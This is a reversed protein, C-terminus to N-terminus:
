ILDTIPRSQNKSFICALTIKKTYSTHAVFRIIENKEKQHNVAHPFLTHPATQTM